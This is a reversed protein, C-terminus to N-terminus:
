AWRAVYEKVNVKRATNESSMYRVKGFVPREPGWARDYRGLTWFIGSYSNPDRGDLAYKNNLEMMTALAQRPSASWELIKKGWLMRLYNHICGENRLQNQAANWLADHTRASEFEDIDYVFERPDNAHEALTTQAWRPLSEFRDFTNSLANKNFGLERWTLAQDLFAEAPESMGWYGHRSGTAASGRITDPSWDERAALRVFVDHVSVHGFHMYPSLGSAGDRRPDNRDNQYHGLREALFRALAAEGAGAGGKVSTAGVAHDIPLGALAEGRLVAATARPWRRKIAPDLMVKRPPLAALPDEDPLCELFPLLEKQLHRRFSHAVTFERDTARMPWLGNGDVAELRSPIRAAAADVMRPLFFCPYDDTVVAAADQALAEILGSGAGPSPEVYPYYHVGPVRFARENDRMGDLVFRHLRDSAWPYEVRLAELVILPRRLELCLEAARELGANYRRRRNATM